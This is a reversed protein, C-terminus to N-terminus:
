PKDELVAIVETTALANAIAGAATDDADATIPAVIRWKDGAKELTTQEGATSRVDIREIANSEVAFVKEKTEPAVPDRESEVFYIYAGLGAALVVLLLLSRGGRM